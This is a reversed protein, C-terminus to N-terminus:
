EARMQFVRGKAKSSDPRSTRAVSTLKLPELTKKKPFNSLLHDTSGCGYCARTLAKIETRSETCNNAMHGVKACKFCANARCESSYKKQC